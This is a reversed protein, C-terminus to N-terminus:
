THAVSTEIANESIGCFLFDIGNPPPFFFLFSLITAFWFRPNRRHRSPFLLVQDSSFFFFPPAFFCFAPRRAHPFLRQGCIETLWDPFPPAGGRILFFFFFFLPSAARTRARLFHCFFLTIGEILKQYEPPLTAHNSL